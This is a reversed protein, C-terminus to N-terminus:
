WRREGGEGEEVAEGETWGQWRGRNFKLNNLRGKLQGIVEMAKLRGGKGTLGVVMNAIGLEVGRLKEERKLGGQIKCEVSQSLERVAWFNQAGGREELGEAGRLGGGPRAM